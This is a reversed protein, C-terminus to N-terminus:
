KWKKKRDSERQPRLIVDIRPDEKDFEVGQIRPMVFYDNRFAIDQFVDLMLKLMNHSDRIKRDPMYVIIDLYYWVDRNDIMWIQEEIAERILATSELIYRKATATLSKAGNRKHYYMHNISPAIPLIVKLKKRPYAPEDRYLDNNKIAKQQRYKDRATNRKKM